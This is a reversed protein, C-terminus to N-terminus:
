GDAVVCVGACPRAGRCTYDDRYTHRNTHRCARSYLTGVTQRQTRNTLTTSPTMTQFFYKLDDGFPMSSASLFGVTIIKMSKYASINFIHSNITNSVATSLVSLGTTWFYM